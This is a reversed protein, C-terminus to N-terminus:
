ATPITTFEFSELFLTYDCTGSSTVMKIEITQSSDTVVQGAGEGIGSTPISCLAVGNTSSSGNMRVNFTTAAASANALHARLTILRVNAPVWAMLVLDSWAFAAATTGVAVQVNGDPVWKAGCQHGAVLYVSADTRWAGVLQKFTYGSPMTPDTTSTSMLFAMTTGNHIRWIYYHTEGALTGTDLANAGTTSTDLTTAAGSEDIVTLTTNPAAVGNYIFLNGPYALPADAPYLAQEIYDLADKIYEFNAEAKPIDDTLDNGVAPIDDTWTAM